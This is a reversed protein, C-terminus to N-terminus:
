IPLDVARGKLTQLVAISVTLIGPTSAATRDFNWDVGKCAIRGGDVASHRYLREVRSRRLVLPQSDM